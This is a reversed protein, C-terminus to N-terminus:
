LSAKHSHINRIYRANGLQVQLTTSANYIWQISTHPLRVQEFDHRAKESRENSALSVFILNPQHIDDYVMGEVGSSILLIQYDNLKWGFLAGNFETLLALQVEDHTVKFDAGMGAILNSLDVNDNDQWYNGKPLLHRVARAFDESSYEIILGTADM